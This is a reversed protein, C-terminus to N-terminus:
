QGLTKNVASEAKAVIKAQRNKFWYGGVFGAALLLVTYVIHSVM